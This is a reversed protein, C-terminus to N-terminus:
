WDDGLPKGDRPLLLRTWTDQSVSSGLSRVSGDVLAVNMTQHPTQALWRECCVKGTPCPHPQASPQVQFLFTNPLGDPYNYSGPPLLGGSGIVTANSLGPTIGFNHYGATYLAIRSLGDCSAYGEALLITNSLGDTISQFSRPPSFYGLGHSDWAGYTATGDGRSSSLANWNALYNTPAWGSVLANAPASTDSPCRAFPFIQTQYPAKWIGYPTATGSSGGTSTTYTYTVGSITVTVTTTGTSQTGGTYQPTNFGSAQIDAVLMQYFAQQDLFPLLWILWGGYPRDYPATNYTAGSANRPPYMGFYCPMTKDSDHFNHMALAIQKMNNQCQMRNASERVQQVAPLLLGILVAILAIVVLLEILTFAQRSTRYLQSMVTGEAFFTHRQDKAFHIPPNDGIPASFAFLDQGKVWRAVVSVALCKLAVLVNSKCM